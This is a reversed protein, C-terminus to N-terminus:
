INDFKGISACFLFVGQCFGPRKKNIKGPEEM